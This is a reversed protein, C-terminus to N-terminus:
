EVFRASPTEASSARAPAKGHPQWPLSDLYELIDPTAGCSRHIGEPEHCECRIGCSPCQWHILPVGM